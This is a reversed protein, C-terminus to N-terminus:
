SLWKATSSATKQSNAKIFSLAKNVDRPNISTKFGDYPSEVEKPKAAVPQIKPTIQITNPSSNSTEAKKVEINSEAELGQDLKQDSLEPLNPMQPMSEPSGSQSQSIQTKVFNYAVSLLVVQGNPAIVLVLGNEDYGFFKFGFKEVLKLLEENTNQATKPDM